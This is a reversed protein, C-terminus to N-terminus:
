GEEEVNINNEKLIIQIEAQLKVRQNKPLKVGNRMRLWNHRHEIPINNDILDVLEKLGLDVIESSLSTMNSEREDSVGEINVPRMLNKKASNRTLWGNYLSCEMLDDYKTCGETEPVYANFPCKLCPKDPRAFQNRKLNYLHNHVCTWLFTKLSGKSPTWRHLAKLAEMRGEQEMDEVDYYGFKFQRALKFVVANLITLVEKETHGKPVKM